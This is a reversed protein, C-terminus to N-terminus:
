EEHENPVNNEWKHQAFPDNKCYNSLFYFNVVPGIVAKQYM